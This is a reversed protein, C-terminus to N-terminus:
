ILDKMRTRASQADPGYRRLVGDLKLVRGSITEPGGRQTNSLNNAPALLLGLVLASLTAVLGTLRNILDRTEAVEEENGPYWARYALGAMGSVFVVAAVAFALLDQSM